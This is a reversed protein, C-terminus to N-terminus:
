KGIKDKIDAIRKDLIVINEYRRSAALKERKIIM